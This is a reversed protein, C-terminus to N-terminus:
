AASFHLTIRAGGALGRGTELRADHAAAVRAVIAM